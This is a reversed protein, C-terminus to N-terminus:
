LSLCPEALVAQSPHVVRRRAMTQGAEAAEDSGEAGRAALHARGAQPQRALGEAHLLATVRRYGYRGYQGALRIVSATM